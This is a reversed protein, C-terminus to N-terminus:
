SRQGPFAIVTGTIPPLAREDLRPNSTAAFARRALGPDLSELWRRLRRLASRVTSPNCGAARSIAAVSPNLGDLECVAAVLAVAWPEPAQLRVDEAGNFSRWLRRAALEVLSGVELLSACRVVAEDVEAPVGTLPELAKSWSATLSDEAIKRDREVSLSQHTELLLPAGPHRDLGEEIVAEAESWRGVTALLNARLGVLFVQMDDPLQGSPRVGELVQLAEPLRSQDALMMALQVPLHVADPFMAVGLVLMNEAREPEGMANLSIAMLHCAHASDVLSWSDDAARLARDPQGMSLLAQAKWILLQAEIQDDGRAAKLLREVESLVRRHRGQHSWELCRELTRQIRRELESWPRTDPMAKM